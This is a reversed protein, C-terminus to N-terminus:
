TNYKEKRKDKMEQVWQEVRETDHWYEKPVGLDDDDLVALERVQHWREELIIAYTWQWPWRHAPLDSERGNGLQATKVWGM